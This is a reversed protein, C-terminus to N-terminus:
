GKLKRITIFSIMANYNCREGLPTALLSFVECGHSTKKTKNPASKLRVRFNYGLIIHSSTM